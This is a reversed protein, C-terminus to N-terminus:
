KNEAIIRALREEKSEEQRSRGLVQNVRAEIAEDFKGEDVLKQIQPTIPTAAIKALAQNLEQGTFPVVGQENAKAGRDLATNAAISLGLSTNVLKTFIADNDTFDTFTPVLQVRFDKMEQEKIQGGSLDRGVSQAIADKAIKIQNARKSVDSDFFGGVMRATPAEVLGLVAGRESTGSLGSLQKAFNKVSGAATTRLTEKTTPAKGEATEVARTERIGGVDYLEKWERTTPDLVKGDDRQNLAIIKTGKSKDNPDIYVEFNVTEAKQNEPKYLEKFQDVDLYSLEGAEISAQTEEPVDYLKGLTAYTRTRQKRSLGAAREAAAEAVQEQRLKAVFEPGIAFSEYDDVYEAYEPNEKLFAIDGARGKETREKTTRATQLRRGETALAAAVQLSQADTANAAIIQARQLLGEPSLPDKVQKLEQQLKEGPTRMDMGLLGGLNRAFMGGLGSPGFQQAPPLMSAGAAGQQNAPGQGFSGLQTLLGPTFRINGRAM